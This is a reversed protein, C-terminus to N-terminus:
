DEIAIIAEVLVACAPHYNRDDGPLRSKRTTYRLTRRKPKDGLDHRHDM